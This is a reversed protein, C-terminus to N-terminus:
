SLFWILSYLIWCFRLNYVNYLIKHIKRRPLWISDNVKPPRKDPIFLGRHSLRWWNHLSGQRIRQLRWQKRANNRRVAIQALRSWCVVPSFGNPFWIFPINLYNMKVKIHVFHCFVFNSALVHSPSLGTQFEFRNLDCRNKWMLM